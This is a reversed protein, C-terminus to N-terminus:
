QIQRWVQRRTGFGPLPINPGSVDLGVVGTGSGDTGINVGGTSISGKPNPVVGGSITVSVYLISTTKNNATATREVIFLGRPTVGSIYTSNEDITGFGKVYGGSSPDLSTLWGGGGVECPDTGPIMSLFFVRQTAGSGMLTPKAITREGPQCITANACTLDLYWGKKGSTEFWAAGNNTPSTTRTGALTSTTKISQEVLSARTVGGLGLDDWVGYLSQVQTNSPDTVTLYSGTGFLIMYGAKAAPAKIVTIEGTIPQVQNAPNKASFLKTMGCDSANPDFRWLNGKYDAGYVYSIKGNNNTSVFATAGLGNNTSNGASVTPKCAKLVKGTEANFVFLTAMGNVSNLGNGAIVVPTSGDELMGIIPKNIMSGLDAIDQNEAAINSPYEWLVSNSSLPSSSVDIAFIGQGGAGLSGAMVSKWSPTGIGTAWKAHGFAAPGDVYYDHEYGPDALKSMRDRVQRPIFALQEVGNIASVLHYFGDNAGFGVLQPASSTKFTDYSTDSYGFDATNIYIPDSNVIDGIASTRNRLQGGTTPIWSQESTRVGLLYKFTNDDRFALKEDALLSSYSSTSIAVRSKGGRGLAIVRSAPSPLATSAKWKPVNEVNGNVDVSFGSLDGGWKITDYDAQYVFSGGGVKVGNGAVASSTAASLSAAKQFAQGLQAGLQSPNNAFFYNEPDGNPKLKFNFGGNIDKSAGGYKAAYWLMDHPVFEGNSSAGVTFSRPAALTTRPLRSVINTYGPGTAPPSMASGPDKNPMTDLFYGVEPTGPTGFGAAGGVDLYVGDKTTGSIVYGQHMEIGNTGNFYDMGVSLTTASTVKVEYTVKADSENDNGQDADSFSVRFKYYPRGNNITTNKDASNTNAMQDIFFATIAGTQQYAGKDPKISYKYVSKSLLVISVSKGNDMPIKIQPVHSDLAISVQDVRLVSSAPLASNTVGTFKGYRAVSAGYFSGENTTSDPGHGRINKFSSVTKASPNGDSDTGSQGIFFKRTAGAGFESKWIEDAETGVNLTGLTSITASGMGTGVTFAAGPLQDSDFSTKPDGITMQIPRACSPYATKQKRSTNAAYPNMWAPTKLKLKSEASNTGAGVQDTFASSAGNNSFYRLGEFMMEGLPNGWSGCAGNPPLKTFDGCGWDSGGFGWPRFTDLHYVIGNVTTVFTGDTPNVEQNFDDVNQRLVGGAYNNDYTGSILGFALSKAEGYKHLLGTPKYKAPASAPYGTCWDEYKGGLLICTKVRVVYQTIPKGETTSSAPDTGPNKGLILAEQAVLDWIRGPRNEYVIMVPPNVTTTYRASYDNPKYQLTTNAFMHRNDTGTPLALPTYKTIDYGDNAISRYEKGWLTSDQPVFTRELITSTTSDTSRKGGYLVKRLVDIRAMSVWNLFNGSWKGPCQYYNKSTNNPDPAVLTGISDPTFVNSAYTYCRDYAFYGEYRFSPKFFLDPVGDGDLDNVDNYAAKYLPLDRGMTLMVLGPATKLALLPAKALDIQATAMGGWLLSLAVLAPTCLKRKLNPIWNSFSYKKSTM